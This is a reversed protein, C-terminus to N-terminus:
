LTVNGIFSSISLVEMHALNEIVNLICNCVFASIFISIIILIAGLFYHTKIKNLNNLNEIEPQKNIPPSIEESLKISNDKIKPKVKSNQKSKNTNNNRYDVCYQAIAGNNLSM